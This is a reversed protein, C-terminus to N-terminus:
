WVISCCIACAASHSSNRLENSLCPRIAWSSRNLRIRVCREGRRLRAAGPELGMGRCKQLVVVFTAGRSRPRAGSCSAASTMTPGRRADIGTGKFHVQQAISDSVTRVTRDSLVRASDIERCRRKRRGVVRSDGPFRHGERSLRDSKIAFDVPMLRSCM